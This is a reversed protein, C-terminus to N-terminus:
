CRKKLEELLERYRKGGAAFCIQREREAGGLDYYIDIKLHEPPLLSEVRKAWEIVAVGPGFFYEEYGLEELEGPGELRYADLHYLPLPGPYERILLYTPSTIVASIGMGRAIGQVLVTKGAGLEGSLALLDGPILLKGLREGLARTEEPSGSEIKMWSRGRPLIIGDVM